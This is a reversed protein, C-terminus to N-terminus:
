TGYMCAGGAATRRSGVNSIQTAEGEEAAHEDRSVGFPKLKFGLWGRCLGDRHLSM